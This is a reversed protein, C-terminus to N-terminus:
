WFLHGCLSVVADKATDLCINCEFSGDQQGSTSGGEDNSSSASAGKPNESTVVMGRSTERASCPSTKPYPSDSSSESGAFCAHKGVVLFTTAECSPAVHCNRCTASYNWEYREGVICSRLAGGAKRGIKQDM